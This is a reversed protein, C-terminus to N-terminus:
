EDVLVGIRFLMEHSKGDFDVLSGDEKKFKITFAKLERLPEEELSLKVPCQEKSDKNLDIEM